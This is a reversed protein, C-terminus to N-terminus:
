KPLNCNSRSLALEAVRKKKLKACYTKPSSLDTLIEIIDVVSFYMKDNHEAKRIPKQEFIARQNDM